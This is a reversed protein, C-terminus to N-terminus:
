LVDDDQQRTITKVTGSMPQLSGKEEQPVSAAQDCKRSDYLFLDDSAVACGGCKVITIVWHRFEESFCFYILPNFCSHFFGLVATSKVTTWSYGECYRTSKSSISKSTDVLLVINYPTWTIFFALVLAFIVRVARQKQVRQVSRCQLLIRAYFYFLVIVPLLFGLVHYVLRSVLCSAKCPYVHTCQINEEPESVSKALLYMWDPISLFLCFIWVTLCILHVLCPSTRSYMQVTHVLSLYLDLSICVLLFVGCLYNIQPPPLLFLETWINM